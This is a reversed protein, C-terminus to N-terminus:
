PHFPNLTKTKEIGNRTPQTRVSLGDGQTYAFILAFILLAGILFKIMLDRKKLMKIQYEVHSELDQIRRNANDLENRLKEDMEDDIEIDIIYADDEKQKCDICIGNEQFCDVLTGCKPCPRSVSFEGPEASASVCNMFPAKSNAAQGIDDNDIMLTIDELALASSIIECRNMDGLSRCRFIDENLLGSPIQVSPKIFSYEGSLYGTSTNIHGRRQDWYPEVETAYLQKFYNIDFPLRIDDEMSYDSIIMAFFGRVSRNGPDLHKENCLIKNNCCIGWVILDKGKILIWKPVDLNVKARDGLLYSSAHQISDISELSINDPLAFHGYDMGLGRTYCYHEIKM